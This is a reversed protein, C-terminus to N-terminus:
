SFPTIKEISILEFQFPARDKWLDSEGSPVNRSFKGIAVLNFAGDSTRRKLEAFTDPSFSVWTINDVSACNRDGVTAGHIGFHFAARLRIIKGDFDAPRAVVDCFAVEPIPTPSPATQSTSNKRGCAGILAVVAVVLLSRPFQRTM